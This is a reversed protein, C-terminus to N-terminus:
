ATVRCHAHMLWEEFEAVAGPAGGCDPGVRVEGPEVVGRWRGSAALVETVGTDLVIGRRHADLWSWGEEAFAVGELVQPRSDDFATSGRYRSILSAVPLSREIIALAAAIDLQAWSTADPLMIATPAFRHGGQHSSRWVRVGNPAAAHLEVHLATGAGGCCVDRKGHTCVVVESAPPEVEGTAGDLLELAGDVVQSRSRRLERPAYRAFSGEPEAPRAHFSITHDGEPPSAGAVLLVRVGMPTAVRLVPALEAVEKVDRPWPLPWQVLLVGGPAQVASGAPRLGCARAWPACRTAARVTVGAVTESGHITM